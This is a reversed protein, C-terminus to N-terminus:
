GRSSVETRRQSSGRAALAGSAESRGVMAKPAGPLQSGATSFGRAQQASLNNPSHPASRLLERLYFLHKGQEKELYGYFLLNTKPDKNSAVGYLFAFQRM